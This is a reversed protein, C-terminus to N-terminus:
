QNQNLAQQALDKLSPEVAATAQRLKAARRPGEVFKGLPAGIMAGQGFGQASAGMIHKLREQVSGPDAGGSLRRWLQEYWKETKPNLAAHLGRAAAGLGGGVLGGALSTEAMARGRNLEDKWGGKIESGHQKIAQGVEKVKGVGKGVLSKLEQLVAEKQLDTGLGLESLLIPDNSDVAQSLMEITLALRDSSSLAM